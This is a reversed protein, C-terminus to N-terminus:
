PRRRARGGSIFGVLKGQSDVVGLAGTGNEAMMERAESLSTGVEVFMESTVPRMADGIRSQRWSERPLARMDELLFIGYLRKENAVPYAAYRNMPLLQDIFAQLTIDPPLVPPLLMVDDVLRHGAAQVAAIISRASDFLFFGTLMAWFGAFIQGRGVALFLGVVMLGIAIAQGSRGTLITAEDLDRGSRWLYARLLRGGDLPYGPLLNFVALLFNALALLFLLDRLVDLEGTNALAMLLVFMVALAFSAVPGAIAIRFEARPTQPERAFRTLGGFPHLVIEVVELRELRAIIAHALEHLFISLFFILTTAAGLGISAAWNRVQANISAATVATMLALVVFWRRDARVPIGAVCVLEVPRRIGKFLQM